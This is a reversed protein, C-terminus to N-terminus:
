ANVTQEYEKAKRQLKWHERKALNAKSFRALRNVDLGANGYATTLRQLDLARIETRSEAERMLSDMNTPTLVAMGCILTVLYSNDLAKLDVANTWEGLKDVLPQSAPERRLAAMGWAFNALEKGPFTNHELARHELRAVLENVNTQCLKGLGYATCALDVPNFSAVSEEEGLKALFDGPLESLLRGKGVSYVITSKTKNTLVASQTAIRVLKSVVAQNKSRNKGLFRLATDCFESTMREDQTNAVLSEVENVPDTKHKRALMFQSVMLANRDAKRIPTSPYALSSARRSAQFFQM